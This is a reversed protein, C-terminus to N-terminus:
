VDPCMVCAFDPCAGYIDPCVVDWMLVCGVDPCERLVGWCMVKGLYGGRIFGLVRITLTLSSLMRCWSM